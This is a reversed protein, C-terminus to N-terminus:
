RSKAAARRRARPGHRLLRRVARGDHRAQPHRQADDRVAPQHRHQPRADAARAPLVPRHRRPGRDQRRGERGLRLRARPAFNNLDQEMLSRNPGDTGGRAGARRAGTAAPRSSCATARITASRRISSRRCSARSRTTPRTRTTSCRTACATTSRSRARRGAVLRRRVDRRRALAAARLPGGVSGLLRVDHRAAPLRRPHQRHDSGLRRAGASGWFRSHQSSGNGDTDENKKNFSALVGAKFFHKGFVKTYDDKIIFLDQNNLFPAENWSRRTARAAGSCRIGPRRRRVAQRQLPNIPLLTSSWRRRATRRDEGGRTIEIKNASYSFQLTNTATNGITQNLSM